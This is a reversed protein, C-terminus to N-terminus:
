HGVPDMVNPNLQILNINVFYSEAPDSDLFANDPLIRIQICSDM